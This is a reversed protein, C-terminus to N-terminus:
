RWNICPVESLRCCAVPKTEALDKAVALAEKARESGHALDVRVLHAALREDIRPLVVGAVKENVLQGVRAGIHTEVTHLKGRFDEPDVNENDGDCVVPSNLKEVVVLALRFNDNQSLVVGMDVTEVQRGRLHLVQNARKKKGAKESV